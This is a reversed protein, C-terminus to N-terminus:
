QARGGAPAVLFNIPRRRASTWLRLYLDDTRSKGWRFHDVDAFLLNAQGYAAVEIKVPRFELDFEVHGAFDEPFRQWRRNLWTPPLAELSYYYISTGVKSSNLIVIMNGQEEDSTLSPIIRLSPRRDRYFEWVKFAFAAFGTLAGFRTLWLWVDNEMIGREVPTTYRDGDIRPLL